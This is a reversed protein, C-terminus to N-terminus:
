FEIVGHYLKCPLLLDLPLLAISLRISAEFLLTLAMTTLQTTTFSRSDNAWQTSALLLVTINPQEFNQEISIFLSFIQDFLNSISNGRFSFFRM